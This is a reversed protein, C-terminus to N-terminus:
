DWERSANVELKDLIAKELDIEAVDALQLLYLAVDALEEALNEKVFEENWQFHELIESVELNLSIALNRPTQPRKSDEEYWGKSRVFNNMLITLQEITKNTM